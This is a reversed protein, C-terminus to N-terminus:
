FDNIDEKLFNNKLFNRKEETVLKFIKHYKRFIRFRKELDKLYSLIKRKM